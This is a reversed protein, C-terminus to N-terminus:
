RSYFVIFKEGDALLAQLGESPAPDGADPIEAGGPTCTSDFVIRRYPGGLASRVFTFHKGQTLLGSIDGDLDKVYVQVARYVPLYPLNFYKAARLASDVLVEDRQNHGEGGDTGPKQELEGAENVQLNDDNKNIWKSKFM